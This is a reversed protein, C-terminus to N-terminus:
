GGSVPPICAVDAGDSLVTTDDAYEIGIAFMVHRVIGALAPVQAVLSARLQAVTAGTPLELELTDHGALQRAVAFLKLRVKM